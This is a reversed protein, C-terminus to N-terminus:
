DRKVGKPGDGRSEIKYGAPVVFLDAQPEGKVINTLRFIHEGVIPDTHKALVIVDLEPSYWTETVAKLTKGGDSFPIDVTIRTGECAIGEIVRQGLSEKQAGPPLAPEQPESAALPHKRAVKSNADLFYRAKAGFDNIFVLLQPKGDGSGSVLGGIELPMERRTRGASDRYQAGSRKKQVTTGDFLRKTDSIEIEASFPKGAVLKDGFRLEASLFEVNPPPGDPRGPARPARPGIREIEPRDLAGDGNTDFRAFAKRVIDAFKAKDIPGDTGSNDFFFPPLPLRKMMQHDGERREGPMREVPMEPRALEVTGIGDRDLGRFTDDIAAELEARDLRDDGNTDVAKLWDGPGGDPGRRDMPPVGPPPGPMGPRQASVAAATALLIFLAFLHKRTM